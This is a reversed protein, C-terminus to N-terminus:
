CCSLVFEGHDHPFLVGDSTPIKLTALAPIHSVFFVIIMLGFFIKACRALFDPVDEKLCAFVAMTVFVYVPVFISFMGYWEIWVLYYQLPLILFMSWFLARQDARRVKTIPFYERLGQFSVLAFCITLAGRGHWCSGIVIACMFWWAITRSLVDRGLDRTKERARLVVGAVTAVILVVPLANIIPSLTKPVKPM